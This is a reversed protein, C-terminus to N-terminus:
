IIVFALVAIALSAPLWLVAVRRKVPACAVLGRLRLPDSAVAFFLAGATPGPVLCDFTRAISPEGLPVLMAAIVFVVPHCCCETRPKKAPTTRLFSLSFRAESFSPLWRM